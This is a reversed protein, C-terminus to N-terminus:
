RPGEKADNRTGALRDRVDKELLALKTGRRTNKRKQIAAFAASYSAQAEADRGVLELIEGRRLLWAPHSSNTALLADIRALAADSRDLSLEIAIAPLQLAVLPGTAKMAHDAVGLAQDHRGAVVLIEMAELVLGPRARQSSGLAAQFDDAAGAADGAQHRMRAREIRAGSHDANRALVRDLTARASAPMGARVLVLAITADTDDADAGFRVANQYAAIADDFRGDQSHLDAQLRWATASEPQRLLEDAIAARRDEIPADAGATQVLPGVLSAYLVLITWASRRLM